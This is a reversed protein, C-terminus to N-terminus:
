DDIAQYVLQYFKRRYKDTYPAFQMMMVGILEEQPDIFFYTNYAGNWYFTGLSYPLNAEAVDNVVGFGLGFGNGAEERKDGVHDLTMLEVTKRSLIRTEGLKGGNLLMQCFKMYDSVTSFLGFAGTYLSIGETPTQRPSLIISQDPQKYHLGIVKDLKAPDVNYTTNNMGLPDFLREQLFDAPSMGSFLEVLRALVDPSTSYRWKEGPEGALPLSAITKVQDEINDKFQEYMERRYVQDLPRNSLGHLLGSTHQFLDAITIPNEATRTPINDLEEASALKVVKQPNSFEPLYKEVPEDLDFHGEEYLMMAAVSMIPKTMSQIFFIGERPMPSKTKLNQFGVTEDFALIGKRYIQIAAGHINGQDIESELYSTLRTLRELHFGAAEPDPQFIEQAYASYPISFAIFLITWLHLFYNM